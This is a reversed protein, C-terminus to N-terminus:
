LSLGPSRPGRGRHCERDLDDAAFADDLAKRATSRFSRQRLVCVEPNCTADPCFCIHDKATLSVRKLRLGREQLINLAQTAALRAPTGPPLSFFGTPIGRASRRSRRFFHQWPRASAQPHRSLPRAAMVFPGTSPSPWPANAPEILACIPFDVSLIAADRLHRWRVLTTAWKLYRDVLEQFFSALQDCTYDEVLELTEGTDLHCYTLRVTVAALHQRCPCVPIRM